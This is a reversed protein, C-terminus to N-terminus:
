NPGSLDTSMNNSACAVDVLEESKISRNQVPSSSIMHQKGVEHWEYYPLVTVLHRWSVFVCVCVCVCVCVRARVCVCVCVCMFVGCGYM